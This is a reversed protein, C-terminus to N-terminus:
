APAQLSSRDRKVYRNLRRYAEAKRAKEMAFFNQLVELQEM